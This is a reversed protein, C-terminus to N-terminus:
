MISEAEHHWKRCHSWSIPEAHASSIVNGGLYCTSVSKDAMTEKM